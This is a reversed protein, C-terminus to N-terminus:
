RLKDLERQLRELEEPSADPMARAANSVAPAPTEATWRRLVKVLVAAAALIVISPVFYGALNFGRKPPAMLAAEGYQGVFADIIQQASKGDKALQMVQKHLAPSYTCTFDTTRCTYIDLGCGCTCRLKKEVAQIGPDNDAATIPTQARGAREPDYVRASTTDQLAAGVAAAAMVLFGRRNVREIM